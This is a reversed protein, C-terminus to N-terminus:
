MSELTRLPSGYQGLLPGSRIREMTDEMTRGTAAAVVASAKFCDETYAVTEATSKTFGSILNGYVAGYKMAEAEQWGFGPRM